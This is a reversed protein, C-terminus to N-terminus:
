QTWAELARRAHVRDDFDHRVGAVEQYTEHGKGAILVIDQAQAQSVAAAIARARDPEVQVPKSAGGLMEDIIRQADEDRPNDSTLWVVDAHACAIGAMLPRKGRDRQGGCGIVCILRAQRHAQLAQLVQYLADPTHAYDVVVLPRGPLAITQMRGAIPQLQAIVELAPTLAVGEGLLCALVALVNHLNFVGLLQSQLTARGWPTELEAVAGTLSTQVQTLRLEANAGQGYRLIDVPAAIRALLAPSWPDDANIVARELGQWSFLRAKAAAYSEMDGHYDLHDRTLNTFVACRLPVADMRHQHLGHSSAEMALHSIGARQLAYLHEQLSVADATTHSADSLEGWPGNGLTGLVGARRGLLHWAQALLHAVSTKGNTGTVATIAMTRGPYTYFAAALESLRRQLANIRLVPLASDVIDSADVILLAAGRQEADHCHQLGHGHSGALAVFAAGPTVKRSDQCLATVALTRLAAPIEYAPLFDSLARKM